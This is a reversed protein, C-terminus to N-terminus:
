EAGQRGGRVLRVAYDDSKGDLYSGGDSFSVSWAHGKNSASHSNSWYSWPLTNPFLKADIKPGPDAVGQDILTKLEDLMPLRWDRAGCFGAANVASLYGTTDCPINGACHGRNRTGASGGNGAPDPNYWSYSHDKDRLGGDDTKVEWVLGTRNDRVCAWTTAGVPLSKGRRDLKTFDATEERVAPTSGVPQRGRELETERPAAYRGSAALAQRWDSGFLTLAGCAVVLMCGVFRIFSM